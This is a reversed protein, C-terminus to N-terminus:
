TGTTMAFTEYWSATVPERPSTSTTGTLLYVRTERPFTTLSTGVSVSWGRVAATRAQLWFVCRSSSTPRFIYEHKVCCDLTLNSLLATSSTGGQHLHNNLSLLLFCSVRVGINQWLVFAVCVSVRLSWDPNDKRCPLNNLRLPLDSM